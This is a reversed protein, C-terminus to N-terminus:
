ATAARFGPRSSLGLSEGTGLPKGAGLSQGADLQQRTSSVHGLGEQNCTTASLYRYTREHDLM